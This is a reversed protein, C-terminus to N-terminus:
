EEDDDSFLEDLNDNSITKKVMTKAKEAEREIREMRDFENKVKIADLCEFNDISDEDIIDEDNFNEPDQTERPLFEICNEVDNNRIGINPISADIDNHIKGSINYFVPWADEQSTYLYKNRLMYEDSGRHTKSISVGIVRFAGNLWLRMQELFKDNDIDIKNLSAIKHTDGTIQKILEKNKIIRNYITKFQKTLIDKGIKADTQISLFGIQELWETLLKITGYKARNEILNITNAMLMRDITDNNFIKDRKMIELNTFKVHNEEAIKLNEIAEKFTDYKLLNNQNVFIAKVKKDGYARFWEKSQNIDVGYLETTIFKSKQILESSTAIKGQKMDNNLKALDDKSINIASALAEADNDKIGNRISTILKRYVTLIKNYEEQTMGFSAISNLENVKIEQLHHLNIFNYMFNQKDKNTNITNEMWLKFYDNHTLETFGLINFEWDTLKKLDELQTKLTPMLHESQKKIHRKLSYETTPHRNNNMLNLSVLINKNIPHRVRNLMQMCSESSSSSNGFMGYINDFQTNTDVSDYSIGAEVSPSTIICNYKHWVGNPDAMAEKVKPDDMTERTILLIKDTSQKLINFITKLSLISKNSAIFIRKNAKLKNEADIIIDIETKTINLTRDKLNKRTNWYVEKTDNTNNRIDSIWKILEPKMDADMLIIQKASRILIKFKKWSENSTEKKSTFTSGTMQMKIKSVEDLIVVDVLNNKGNQPQFRHKYLSEPSIILKNQTGDLKIRKLNAKKIDHKEMITDVRKKGKETSIDIKGLKEETKAELKQLEDADFDLYCQLGNIGRFKENRAQISLAIRYNIFVLSNEPNNYKETLIKGVADTKGTGLSSDIAIINADSTMLKDFNACYQEDFKIVKAGTNRYKDEKTTSHNDLSIKFVKDICKKIFSIEEQIQPAPIQPAPSQPSGYNGLFINENTRYCKLFVKKTDTCILLYATKDKDHNRECMSCYSSRVRSFSIKINNLTMKKSISKSKILEPIPNTQNEYDEHNSYLALAEKIITPDIDSQDPIYTDPIEIPTGYYYDKNKTENSISSICYDIDPTDLNDDQNYTYPCVKKLVSDSGFKSCGIIRVQRNKTYIDDIVSKGNEDLLMQKDWIKNVFHKAELHNRFIMGSNIIIHFSGKTQEPSELIQIDETALPQNFEDIYVDRLLEIFTDLLQKKDPYINKNYDIDFYMKQDGTLVEYFNKTSLQGVKSFYYELSPLSAYIRKDKKYESAIVVKNNNPRDLCEDQKFFWPM